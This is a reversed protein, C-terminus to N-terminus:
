HITCYVKVVYTYYVEIVTSYYVEVITYYVEVASFTNYPCM